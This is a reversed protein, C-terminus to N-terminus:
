WPSSPEGVIVIITRSNRSSTTANATIRTSMIKTSEPSSARKETGRM